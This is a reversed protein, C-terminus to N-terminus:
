AAAGRIGYLREAGADAEDQLRELEAREADTLPRPAPRGTMAAIRQSITLGTQPRGPADSMDSVIRATGPTRM